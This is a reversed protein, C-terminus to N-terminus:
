LRAATGSRLRFCSRSYRPACTMEARCSGSATGAAIRSTRLFHSEIHVASSAVIRVRRDSIADPTDRRVDHQRTHCDIRSKRFECPQFSRIDGRPAAHPHIGPDDHEQTGLLRRRSIGTGYNFEPWSQRLTVCSKRQCLERSNRIDLGGSLERSRHSRVRWQQVM